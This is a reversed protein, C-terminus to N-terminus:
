KVSNIKLRRIAEKKLTAELEKIEDPIPMPIVKCKEVNLVTVNESYCSLCSYVDPDDLNKKIQFIYEYGCKNCRFTIKGEFTKSMAGIVEYLTKSKSQLTQKAM